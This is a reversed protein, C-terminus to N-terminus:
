AQCPKKQFAQVHRALSDLQNFRVANKRWSKVDDLPTGSAYCGSQGLSGTVRSVGLLTVHDAIEIHGAIASAGGIACHEGIVASGAIAVAAAIATGKGIRVNHAIQVLNDIKVGDSIVTDGLAGRDVCSNAGIEVNHGVSVSGLQHIKEWTKEKGDLDRIAFGFGDAGIVTGSHIICHSGIHVGHYISVNSFVITNARIKVGKGIFSGPYIRVGDGLEVGSEIVVNAGISCNPGIVVDEEVVATPHIDSKPSHDSESFRVQSFLATLVAYALYPDPTILKNGCFLEADKPNVILCGARTKKLANKYKSNALFTLDSEGADEITSLGVLTLNSAGTYEVSLGSKKLHACLQQPSFSPPVSSSHVM